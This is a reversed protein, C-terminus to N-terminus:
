TTPEEPQSDARGEVDDLAERLYHFSLRRPTLRDRRRRLEEVLENAESDVLLIRQYEEKLSRRREIWRGVASM